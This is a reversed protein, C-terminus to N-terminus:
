RRGGAWMGNGASKLLAQASITQDAIRQTKRRAADVVARRRRVVARAGRVADRQKRTARVVAADRDAVTVQGPERGVVPCEASGIYEAIAYELAAEAMALDEQADILRDGAETRERDAEERANDLRVIRAEIQEPTPPEYIPETM